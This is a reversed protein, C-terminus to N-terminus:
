LDTNVFQGALQFDLGFGDNVEQRAQTNSFLLGVGAGNGRVDGLLNAMLELTGGLGLGNRDGDLFSWSGSRRLSRSM